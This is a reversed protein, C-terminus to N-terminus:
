PRVAGPDIRPQAGAALLDHLSRTEIGSGTPPELAFSSDPPVRELDVKEVEVRLRLKSGDFALDFESPLLLGAFFAYRRFTVLIRRGDGDGHVGIKEVLGDTKRVYYIEKRNWAPDTAIPWHKADDPQTPLPTDAPVSALLDALERGALAARVLDTPRVGFLAEPHADLDSVTGRYFEGRDYLHVATQDESQTVRFLRSLRVHSVNLTVRSPARYLLHLLVRRKGQVPGGSVVTQMRLIMHDVPPHRLAIRQQLEGTTAPPSPFPEVPARFAPRWFACGNGLLGLAVCFALLLIQRPFRNM